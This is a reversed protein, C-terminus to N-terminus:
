LPRKSLGVDDSSTSSDSTDELAPPATGDAVDTNTPTPEAVNEPHISEPSAAMEAPNTAEMMM